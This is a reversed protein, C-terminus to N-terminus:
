VAVPRDAAPRPWFRSADHFREALEALQAIQQQAAHAAWGAVFGGANALDAGGGLEAIRETLLREAVAADNAIGLADQLAELRRVYRLMRKGPFASASFEAAYRLKKAEIRVAHREAPTAGPLRRLARRLKKHRHELRRAVAVRAPLFLMASGASLSQERWARRAVWRRVELVVRAFDPSELRGRVREAEATRAGLVDAALRALAADDPRAALSPALWHDAFVDLDRAPALGRALAALSARLAVRQREPLVERFFSLASRLRRVGVRLQHVGEPDIGLLAAEENGAIQALCAEVVTVLLDELTADQPTEIADAKRPRARAGLLLSVARAAPHQASIRFGIADLLELALQAPYSPDGARTELALIALPEDGNPTRVSGSDLALLIENQDERLLRTERALDVEFVPALPEGAVARAVDARLGEDPIRALDPADVPLVTDAASTVRTAGLDLRAVTQVSARGVRRVCLAIGARALALEATDFYVAHERARRPRGQTLAAVLPHRRLRTIAEPAIGLELHTV